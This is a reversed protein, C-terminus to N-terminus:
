ATAKRQNRRAIRYGKADYLYDDDSMSDNTEGSRFSQYSDWLRNQKSMQSLQLQGNVYNGYSEGMASLNQGIIQGKMARFQNNAAVENQAFQNFADNNYQRVRNEGANNYQRETNQVQEVQMANAMKQNAGAAIVGLEAGMSQRGRFSYQASKISDNTSNNLRNALANTDLDLPIHELKRPAMGPTRKSLLNYVFTGTSGLMNINRNTRNLRNLWLEENNMDTNPKTEDNLKDQLSDTVSQSVDSAKAPNLTPTPVSRGTIAVSRPVVPTPDMADLQQGLMGSISMDPLQPEMPLPIATPAFPSQERLPPGGPGGRAYQRMGSLEGDAVERNGPGIRFRIADPSRFGGNFKYSPKKMEPRPVSNPTGAQLDPIGPMRVNMQDISTRATAPIPPLVKQRPTTNFSFRGDEGQLLAPDSKNAVVLRHYAKGIDPWAYDVDGSTMFSHNGVTMSDNYMQIRNNYDAKNKARYPETPGGQAYQRLSDPTRVSMRDISTREPRDEVTKTYRLMPEITKTYQGQPMPEITKTYGTIGGGSRVNGGEADPYLSRQYEAFGIGMSRAVKNLVDDHELGEGSSVAVPGTPTMMRQDDDTPGGQGGIRTPTAGANSFQVGARQMSNNPIVNTGGRAYRRLMSGGRKFAPLEQNYGGEQAYISDADMQEQLLAGNDMVAKREKKKQAAGMMLDVGLGAAMAVGGVIPGAAMASAGMKTFQFNNTGSVGPPLMGVAAGAVPAVGSGPVSSSGGTNVSQGFPKPTNRFRMTDPISNTPGGRFYAKVGEAKDRYKLQDQTLLEPDAADQRAAAAVRPDVFGGRFRYSPFPVDQVSVSAPTRAGDEQPLRPKMRDLRVREVPRPKPEPRTHVTAVVSAQVDQEDDKLQESKESLSLPPLVKQKPKTDYAFNKGAGTWESTPQITKHEIDPSQHTPRGMREDDVQEPGAYRRYLGWLHSKWDIMPSSKVARDAAIRLQMEEKTGGVVGKTGSPELQKQLQTYNYLTLSDNYMQVRHDYDAKSKAEYPKTPPNTPGGTAYKRLNM